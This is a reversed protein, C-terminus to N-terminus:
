RRWLQSSWASVSICDRTTVRREVAWREGLWLLAPTLAACVYMGAMWGVFVYKWPVAEGRYLRPVSDQTIYFLGAITWALWLGAILRIQQRVRPSIVAKNQWPNAEARPLKQRLPRGRHGVASAPAETWTPM